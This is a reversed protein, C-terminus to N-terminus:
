ADAEITGASHKRVFREIYEAVMEPAEEQPMHGSPIWELDSDSDGIAASLQVGVYPQVIRDARGFLVLTPVKIAQYEGLWHLPNTALLQRATTSLAYIGNTAQV